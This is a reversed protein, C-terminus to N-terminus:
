RLVVDKFFVKFDPKTLQELGDRRGVDEGAKRTKFHMTRQM